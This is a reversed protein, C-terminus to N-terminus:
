GYAHSLSMLWSAFNPCINLFNLFVFIKCYVHAALFIKESMVVAHAPETYM